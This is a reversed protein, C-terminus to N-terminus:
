HPRLLFFWVLSALVAIGIILKIIRKYHIGVILAAIGPLIYSPWDEMEMKLQERAVVVSGIFTGIAALWSWDSTTSSSRQKASASSAAAKAAKATKQEEERRRSEERERAQERERRRRIADYDTVSGTGGCTVCISGTDWDMGSGRAVIARGMGACATCSKQDM